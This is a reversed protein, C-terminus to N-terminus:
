SAVASSAAYPVKRRSPGPPSITACNLEDHVTRTYRSSSSQIWTSPVSPLATAPSDAPTTDTGAPSLTM